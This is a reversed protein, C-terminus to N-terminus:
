NDPHDHRCLISDFSDERIKSLTLIGQLHSRVLETYMFVKLFLVMKDSTPINGFPLQFIFIDYLGARVVCLYQFLCAPTGVLKGANEGVVLAVPAAQLIRSATEQFQGIM